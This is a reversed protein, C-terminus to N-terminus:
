PTPVGAKNRIAAVQPDIRARAYRLYGIM